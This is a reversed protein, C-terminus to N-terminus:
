ERGEAGKTERPSVVGARITYRPVIREHCSREQGVSDRLRVPEDRLELVALDAERGAEVAGLRDQWGIAHAPNVTCAAIIEELSAGLLLFKTMTNPLDVVPGEGSRVHLDTSIMDPRLGQDM